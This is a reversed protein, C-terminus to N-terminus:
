SLWLVFLRWKISWHIESVVCHTWLAIRTVHFSTLLGRHWTLLCLTNTNHSLCRPELSLPMYLGTFVPHDMLMLLVISDSNPNNQIVVISELSSMLVRNTNWLWPRTHRNMLQGWQLTTRWSSPSRRFAIRSSPAAWCLRQTPTSSSPRSSAWCRAWASLAWATTALTVQSSSLADPDSCANVDCVQVISYIWVSHRRYDLLTDTGRHKGTLSTLGMCSAAIIVGFVAATDELLVVNTSPDRSQMVACVCVCV